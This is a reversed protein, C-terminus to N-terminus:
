CSRECYCCPGGCGREYCALTEREEDVKVVMTDGKINLYHGRNEQFFLAMFCLFPVTSIGPWVIDGCSLNYACAVPCSGGGSCRACRVIYCGSKARRQNPPLSLAYSTADDEPLPGRDRAMSVTEPAGKATSRTM